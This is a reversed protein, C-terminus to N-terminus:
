AAVEALLLHNEVSIPAQIPKVAYSNSDLVNVAYSVADAECEFPGILLQEHGVILICRM